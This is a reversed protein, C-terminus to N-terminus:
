AVNNRGLTSGKVLECPLLRQVPGSGEILETLVEVAQRGMEARPIRFGTFDIDTPAPRTPDGLTVISLDGPVTLGRERAARLIAAGDAYEEAFIATAGTGLVDESPPVTIASVGATGEGFARHRDTFSEPGEGYGVYAFKEHGLARAQDVLERVAGAYGAGVYSVPGDADDRRGVSVFPYGEAVLRALEERDLERGLLVCGDALRLRHDQHFIRKRGDVLPASTLLLLDCGVQEASEEIGVLFPHYFDGTASPFVPEYTFVGLIRNRGAALRRALPDAVYGTERIVRLVRDRTEAPIRTEAGPRNNLVLSVTTQSVGALRAIDRQTIRGM